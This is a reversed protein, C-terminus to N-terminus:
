KKQEAGKASRTQEVKETKAAEGSNGTKKICVLASVQAIKNNTFKARIPLSTFFIEKTPNDNFFKQARELIAPFVTSRNVELEVYKGCFHYEMKQDASLIFPDSPTTQWEGESKRLFQKVPCGAFEFNASSEEPQKNNKWIKKFSLSIGAFEFSNTVFNEATLSGAPDSIFVKIKGNGPNSLESLPLTSPHFAGLSPVYIPNPDNPDIEYWKVFMSGDYHYVFSSHPVAVWGVNGNEDTVMALYPGKVIEAKGDGDLDDIELLATGVIGSEENALPDDEGNVVIYQFCHNKWEWIHLGKGSDGSSGVGSTEEILEPVNDGTLDALWLKYIWGRTVPKSTECVVTFTEGNDNTKLLKWWGLDASAQWCLLLYEYPENPMTFVLYQFKSDDARQEVDYKIREADNYRCAPTTNYECEKKLGEPTNQLFLSVLQDTTLTLSFQSLTLLSFLIMFLNKKM